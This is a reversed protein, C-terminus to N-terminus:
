ANLKPFDYFLLTKTARAIHSWHMTDITFAVMGCTPLNDLITGAQENVWHTLGNNHCVFLLTEISDDTEALVDTIIAPAAHYLRDTYMIKQADFNIASAILNCTTKARLATSSLLGDINLRRKLLRAGMMPADSLGRENLPRDFDQQGINAWSSKAHRTAIITKV